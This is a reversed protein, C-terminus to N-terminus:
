VELRRDFHVNSTARTELTTIRASKQKFQERRKAATLIYNIQSARDVVDAAKTRDLQNVFQSRQELDAGNSLRRLQRKSSIAITRRQIRFTYKTRKLEAELRGAKRM